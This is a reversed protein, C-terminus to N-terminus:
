ILTTEESLCLDSCLIKIRKRKVLVAVCLVVAAAGLAIYVKYTEGFSPPRQHFLLSAVVFCAIVM